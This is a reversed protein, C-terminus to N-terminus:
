EQEPQINNLQQRGWYILENLVWTKDVDSLKNFKSKVSVINQPKNNKDVIQISLTYKNKM